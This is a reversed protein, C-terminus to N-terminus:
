PALPLRFGLSLPYDKLLRLRPLVQQEQSYISPGLERKSLNWNSSGFRGFQGQLPPTHRMHDRSFKKTSIPLGLIFSLFLFSKVFNM